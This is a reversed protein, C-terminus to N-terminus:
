HSFFEFMPDWPPLVIPKQKLLKQLKLPLNKRPVVIEYVYYDFWKDYMVYMGNKGAKSGWSNEVLWKIPHRNTDLDVGTFVM